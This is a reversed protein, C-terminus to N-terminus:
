FDQCDYAILFRKAASFIASNLKKVDGASLKIIRYSGKKVPKQFAIVVQPTIPFVLQVTSDGYAYCPTDSSLFRCDPPAVYIELTLTELALKAQTYIPGNSEFYERLYKLRLDHRMDENANIGAKYLRQEVPIEISTLPIISDVFDFAKNEKASHGFGRWHQLVMYRIFFGRCFYDIFNESTAMIRRVLEDRMGPWKDEEHKIQEIELSIDIGKLIEQKLGRKRSKGVVGGDSDYIEWDDYFPFMNNLQEASQLLENEYKIIYGNLLLFLKDYQEESLLTTGPSISYEHNIGFNKSINALKIESSTKDFQWVGTGNSSWARLYTQPVLHQYTHAGM